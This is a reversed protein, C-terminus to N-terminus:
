KKMIHVKKKRKHKHKKKVLKTTNKEKVQTKPEDKKVENKDYIVKKQILVDAKAAKHSAATDAQSFASYSFLAISSLLLSKLKM